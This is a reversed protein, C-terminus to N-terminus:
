AALVVAGASGGHAGELLRRHRISRIGRLGTGCAPPSAGGGGGRDPTQPPPCPCPPVPVRLLMIGDEAVCRGQGSQTADAQQFSGDAQDGGEEDLRELGERFLRDIDDQSLQAVDSTVRMSLEDCHVRREINGDDLYVVDFSTGEDLTRLILVDFSLGDLERGAIGRPRVELIGAAQQM